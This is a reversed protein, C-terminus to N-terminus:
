VVVNISDATTGMDCKYMLIVEYSVSIIIKEKDNALEHSIKRM